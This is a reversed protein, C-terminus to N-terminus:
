HFKIIRSPLGVATCNDPINDKVVAGAGIISNNGIVVDPLIIAGAGIQVFDGIKCRGLLIVGPSIEAYIGIAVDHTLICNYYIMSGRGISVDNSIKVGSLINCGEGIKVGFTGIETENSITSILEGGLSEFKKTLSHRLKPNGLGLAFYRNIKTFYNLAEEQSKLVTFGGYITDPLNETVDDYFCLSDTKGISYLVQLIEKAFGKAGVILM